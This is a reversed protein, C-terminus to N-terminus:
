QQRCVNEKTCTNRGRDDDNVLLVLIVTFAYEEYIGLIAEHLVSCLVSETLLVDLTNHISPLCLQRYRVIATHHFPIFYFLIVIIQVNGAVDLRYICLHLVIYIGMQMASKRSKINVVHINEPLSAWCQFIAQELKM